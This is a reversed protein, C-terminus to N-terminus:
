EVAGAQGRTTARADPQESVAEQGDVDRAKADNVEVEVAAEEADGTRAPVGADHGHGGAGECGDRWPRRALLAKARGPQEASLSPWARSLDMLGKTASGRGGERVGCLTGDALLKVGSAESVDEEETGHPATHREVGEASEGADIPEM